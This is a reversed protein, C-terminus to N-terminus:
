SGQGNRGPRIVAYFEELVESLASLVTLQNGTGASLMEGSFVDPAALILVLTRHIHPEIRDPVKRGELPPNTGYSQGRRIVGPTVECISRSDTYPPPGPAAEM